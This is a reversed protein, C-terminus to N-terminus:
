HLVKVRNGLPIAQVFGTKSEKHQWIFLLNHIHYWVDEEPRWLHTHELCTEGKTSYLLSCLVYSVDLFTIPKTKIKPRASSHIISYSGAETSLASLQLHPKMPSMTLHLVPCVNLCWPMYAVNLPLCTKNLFSLLEATLQAQCSSVDLSFLAPFTLSSESSPLFNLHSFNESVIESNSKCFQSLVEQRAGSKVWTTVYVNEVNLELLPWAQVKVSCFSLSSWLVCLDLKM